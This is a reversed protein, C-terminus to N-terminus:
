GLWVIVTPVAYKELQKQSLGAVWFAIMLERLIDLRCHLFHTCFTVLRQVNRVVSHVKWHQEQWEGHIFTRSRAVCLSIVHKSPNTCMLSKEPLSSILRYLRIPCWTAQTSQQFMKVPQGVCGCFPDLGNVFRVKEQYSIKVESSLSETYSSLCQKEAMERPVLQIGVHPAGSYSTLVRRSQM